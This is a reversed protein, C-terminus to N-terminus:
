KAPFSEHKRKLFDAASQFLEAMDSHGALACAEPLELWKFDRHESSLKVTVENSAVKALWYIVCKNKQKSPDFYNLTKKFDEHLVLDSRRLGAEEETERYAATLPEENGDVFGSVVKQLRGTTSAM